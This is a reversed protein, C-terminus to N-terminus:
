ETLDRRKFIFGKSQSAIGAVTFSEFTDFEEILEYSGALFALFKERNFFWAPYSASYIEAPTKQVTLRDDGATIFPTRDVLLYPIKKDIIDALMEYPRELYPLVSSLLICNSEQEHLCADLSFYFRLYEDEFHKRGCEVFKHQEIINWSLEPLHVLFKRNQFYSSGLSGGFDILNLRNGSRSAVWLLAALLPWSYEVRDFIVSDREYVAEGNKVKLLADRVNALILDSDYGSSARQADEWTAYNGKFVVMGALRGLLRILTRLALPPLVDRAMDRYLKKV